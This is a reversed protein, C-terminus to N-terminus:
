GKLADSTIDTTAENHHKHWLPYHGNQTFVRPTLISSLHHLRCEAPTTRWANM